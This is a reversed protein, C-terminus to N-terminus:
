LKSFILNLKSYYYNKFCMHFMYKKDAKKLSLIANLNLMIFRPEM